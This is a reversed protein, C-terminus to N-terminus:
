ILSWMFDADPTYFIRPLFDCFFTDNDNIHHTYLHNHDGNGTSKSICLALFGIDIKHM